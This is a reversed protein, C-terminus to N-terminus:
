LPLAKFTGMPRSIERIVTMFNSYTGMWRKTQAAFRKLM